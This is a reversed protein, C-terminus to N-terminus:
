RKFGQGSQCSNKKVFVLSFIYKLIKIRLHLPWCGLSLIRPYIRPGFWRPDMIKTWNECFTYKKLSFNIRWPAIEASNWNKQGQFFNPRIWSFFYGAFFYSKEIKFSPMLTYFLGGEFDFKLPPWQKLMKQDSTM